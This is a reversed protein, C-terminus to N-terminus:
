TSLYPKLSSMMELFGSYDLPKIMYAIINQRFTKIKEGHETSTTLVVTAVGCIRQEDQVVELFELGNMKPMNLDLLIISPLPNNQDTLYALAEEGNESHVLPNNVKIDRLARKVTLVDVYDDEVLLIPSKEINM